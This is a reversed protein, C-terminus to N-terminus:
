GLVSILVFQFLSNLIVSSKNQTLFIKADDKPESSEKKAEYNQTNLIRKQESAKQVDLQKKIDGPNKMPKITIWDMKQFVDRMESEKEKKRCFGHNISSLYLDKSKNIKILFLWEQM